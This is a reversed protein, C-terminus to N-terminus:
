LTSFKYSTTYHYVDGPRLFCSPFLAHNPSDPYNQTELCLGHRRDNPVGGKGPAGTLFNASYFQVGPQDTYVEMRRGAERDEVVAAKKILKDWGLVFNHDYGGAWQLQQHADDIGDGIRKMSRLDFATGEVPMLNGLPISGADTETIYNAAISIYEKEISNRADGSLNFYSHNTLNIVTTKDSTAKYDLTFANDESLSYTVTVTMKGPYGEEMDEASATLILKDGDIESAFVKQNFGKIGGHLANEGNNIPLTYTTGDITFHGKAIRNAFRGIFAGLYGDNNEYGAVDDYGLVVDEFGNKGPAKIVRIICGYDLVEVEMGNQNTFTFSSVDRGDATKGFFGNAKIMM